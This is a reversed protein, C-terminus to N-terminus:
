KIGLKKMKNYLTKRHINLIQAAKQKVGNSEKLAKLIIDKSITDYAEELSNTDEGNVNQKYQSPLDEIAIKTNTCFIVSRELCNKLERINGPWNHKMFINEVQKEIGKIEKGYM